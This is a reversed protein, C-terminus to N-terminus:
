EQFRYEVASQIFGVLLFIFSLRMIPEGIDQFGVTVILASIIFLFFSVYLSFNSGKKWFWISILSGILVLWYIYSELSYDVYFSYAWIYIVGLILGLFLSIKIIRKM